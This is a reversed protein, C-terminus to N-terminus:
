KLRIQRQMVGWAITTFLLTPFAAMLIPPMQFALTAAGFFENLIYFGLGVTIGSILRLGMTANRLPGFLFPIALYMMVLSALPQFIRQWFTLLYSEANLDNDKYHTITQYLQTLPMNKASRAITKLLAPKISLPWTMESTTTSVVSHPLIRSEVLQYFVWKEGDYRAYNAYSSRILRHQHDFAYQSIGTLHEASVIKQIHIFHRGDRIWIGEQTGLAQGASLANTKNSDAMHKTYPAVLEGFLTIAIVMVSATKLISFTIARLSLGAAQMAILESHNALMGLGLLIGLLGIMPFLQYIEYPLGLLVYSFAQALGYDGTGIQRLENLFLLLIELGVLTFFVLGTTVLLSYAIYRDLLKM